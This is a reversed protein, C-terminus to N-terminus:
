YEHGARRSTWKNVIMLLTLRCVAQQQNATEHYVGTM